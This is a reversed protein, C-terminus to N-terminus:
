KGVFWTKIKKFVGDKRPQERGDHTIHHRYHEELIKGYAQLGEDPSALLLEIYPVAEDSLTANSSVTRYESRLHPNSNTNIAAKGNEAFYDCHLIEANAERLRITGKRENRWPHEGPFLQALLFERSWLTVQHSMLYRSRQVDLRAVSLGCLEDGTPTTVFVESSNLKLQKIKHEVAYAFLAAFFDASVNKNLWMDEQFYLVYPEDLQKLGRALRDSWEGKGTKINKFHPLDVSKEESFFYYNLPLAFDWHQSFFHHFGKFLLEYRDCAHVVLAISPATHQDSRKQM